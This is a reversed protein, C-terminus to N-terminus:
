REWIVEIANKDKRLGKFAAQRLVNGHTWGRFEIEAVLEPEVFRVNRKPLREGFPSTQRSRKKLEATLMRHTADNFGSGANGAYRLRGSPADAADYYGLALRGVRADNANGEPIWGGIVFEQRQVIKIKLWAGSRAGPVYPSDLAKAVIGELQQQRASELVAVGEGVHAPTLQWAPGAITLEELAARRQTYPLPMTPRDDLYLVDFILYYVPVQRMLRIAAHPSAHMRHQLRSFNPVSTVPDLAVIEGDLICRRSIAPGLERLEPYRSTIDIRNRSEIALTAGDWYALARVGDWKYEFSYREPHAPLGASLTALMPALHRPLDAAQQRARPRRAALSHAISRAM